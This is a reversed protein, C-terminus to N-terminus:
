EWEWMPIKSSGAGSATRRPTRAARRSRTTPAAPAEEAVDAQASDHVAPPAAEIVPVPAPAAVPAAAAPVIPTTEARQEDDPTLSAWVSIAAAIVGAVVSATLAARPGRSLAARAPARSRERQRQLEGAFAERLHEGVDLRGESGVVDALVDDLVRSVELATRPRHAPDKALMSFVLEVLEPAADARVEGLDPPPEHLIRRVGDHGDVNRYLRRGALLEYLVIGLSFLDARRDVEEFRLQEPAMYGLKGKLVGTATRTTRGFAKAVGFDTVRTVGDFGVLINQPSVDRHVLALPEGSPATLEHAAHLGRAAEIGIRLALQLPVEARRAIAHQVIASAPVGEVYEMVLYPGEDDEGVDLVSVVNAHRVLGAIRAEDFFMTRFEADDRHADHLRKRAYLREFSGERRRVLEVRGVGGSAIESLPEYASARRSRLWRM